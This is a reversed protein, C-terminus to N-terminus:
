PPTRAMGWSIKMNIWYNWLTVAAIAILNAIYRNVHAFNYLVNLLIVNLVLGMGCVINFKLLRRLVPSTRRGQADSFTWVDNWLFNNLIAIEAAVAKSRTLGFGLQTPDSLLYLVTTDVLVGSLGVLAFRLFRTGSPTTFRLRLLHLIYEVYLKATVKSSGETRERFVYGEEEVKAIRGRGIVELLIKYGLPSLMVDSIVDRRLMFYGSMPDTVRGVVGPLLVLGLLQAGRSLIRRALSWTSVGGGEANRSGIALEAGQEIRDFLRTVVEPPHQLDADIVALVDGRAVQWGRIVASSLGREGIRRMVRVAPWELSAQQAVEWTRDRSDDDVVILEYANPLKADLLATLQSLLPRINQSENYTPIVLSLRIARDDGQRAPVVLSGTPAPVLSSNGGVTSPQM